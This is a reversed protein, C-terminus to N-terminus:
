SGGYEKHVDIGVTLAFVTLFLLGSFVVIFVVDWGGAYVKGRVM